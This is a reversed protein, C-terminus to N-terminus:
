NLQPQEISELSKLFVSLSPNYHSDYYYNNSHICVVMEEEPVLYLSSGSQGSLFPLFSVGSSYEELFRDTYIWWGYGLSYDVDYSTWATTVDLVWERSIIRHNDTWKGERLILYGIRTYDLTSLNLGNGGDLTGASDAQWTYDSIGIPHFLRDAIFTELPQDGLQNQFIRALIVGNASNIVKRLGPAAEMPKSLIYETWDDTLKMQYLDSESQQTNVLSENWVLGSTNQLLHLITINQKQPSADFISQYEPLYDHIPADLSTIFGEELFFGLLLTTVALTGRGINKTRSRFFDNYYNEFVLQNGRTIILGNINGYQTRTIAANLQLLLSDNLGNESPLGYDWVDQDPPLEESLYCSSLALTWIFLVKKM